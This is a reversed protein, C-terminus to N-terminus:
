EEVPIAYKFFTEDDLFYMQEFKEFKLAQLNGYIKTLHKVAKKEDTENVKVEFIETKVQGNEDIKSQAATVNLGKVTRQM